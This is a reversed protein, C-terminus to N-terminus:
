YIIDFFHCFALDVGQPLFRAYIRVLSGGASLEDDEELREKKESFVIRDCRNQFHQKLGAILFYRIPRKEVYILRSSM